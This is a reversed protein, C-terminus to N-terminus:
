TGERLTDLAAESARRAATRCQDLGAEAAVREGSGPLLKLLVGLIRAQTEIQQALDATQLRAMELQERTM